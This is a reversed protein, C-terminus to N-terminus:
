AAPSLDHYVVEVNNGFPDTIFAGYYGPSYEKRYGPAGNDSGGAALAAAHFAEVTAKSSGVLAIHVNHNAERQAIWLDATGSGIGFVSYEPYESLISYGIPALAAAYFAKAKEIDNVYVGIHDLM